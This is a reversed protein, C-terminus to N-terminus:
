PVRYRWYDPDRRDHKLALVFLGQDDRTYLISYPFKQVRCSRVGPEIERFREPDGRIQAIAADVAQVFREAAGSVLPKSYEDRADEDFHLSV